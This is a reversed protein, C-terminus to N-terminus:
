GTEEHGALLQRATEFDFKQAAARAAQLLPEWDSNPLEALCSEIATVSGGDADQLLRLLTAVSAPVPGTPKGGTPPGAAQHTAQRPITKALVAQIGASMAEISQALQRRLARGAPSNAKGARLVQELAEALAQLEHMGLTGVRGRFAHMAQRASESAGGALLTDITAAFGASEDVFERLWHGYRARNGAFRRLATASDLGGIAAWENEGADVASTAPLVATSPTVGQVALWRALLAFFAPLSFPKGLHDNMGGALYVEKEHVMTHATMAVIPLTAFGPLARIRGTAALGDLVPMQIDMLVLDFAQPGAERLIDVAQQGNEAFRPVIGVSGLLEFVLERNLPQDDVVLVRAAPYHAPPGAAVASDEGTPCESATTVGLRLRVRFCTGQGPQSSVEISGQMGEALQKCIALGLGTGGHKRTISPDAQVFPQYIRAIESESMGIGSDEVEILLGAQQADLDEIAIRVVIWGTETFKLSNNLLNLLIQEIRLPDGVLWEPLREDIRSELNLGKEIAHHGIVSLARAVTKRLSFPTKELRMEGAAIKTLDLLDNIIALLTQGADRIKELYERQRSADNHNLALASLGIVANLPTRLEHSVNALFANKVRDAIKAAELAAQLARNQLYLRLFVQTKARLLQDKIPKTLYDTAGTRYGHIRDEPSNHAATIFIVPTDATQPNASLRECVEFGDMEPMQVDLLILAFEEELTIALADFGNSAEVITAEVGRLATRIALRNAALDDVVLIKPVGNM